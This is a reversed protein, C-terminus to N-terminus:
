LLIRVKLWFYNDSQMLPRIEDKISNDINLYWKLLDNLSINPHKRPDFYEPNLSHNLISKQTETKNDKEM